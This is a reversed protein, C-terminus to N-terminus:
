IKGRVVSVFDGVTKLSELEHGSLRIDFERQVAEVLNIHALSDWMEFDESSMNEDIQLSDDEFEDRFIDILASLIETNEM